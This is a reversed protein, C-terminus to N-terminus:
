YQIEATLIDGEMKVVKMLYYFDGNKVVYYSPVDIQREDIFKNEGVESYFDTLFYDSSYDSYKSEDIYAFKGKLTKMNKEENNDYVQGFIKSDATKGSADFVITQKNSLVRNANKYDARDKNDVLNFKYSTSGDNSVVKILYEGYVGVFSVAQTKAGTGNDKKSNYIVGKGDVVAIEKEYSNSVYLEVRKIESDSTIGLNITNSGKESLAVTGKELLVKGGNEIASGNITVSITPDNDDDDSGCSTFCPIITAAALLLSAFKFKKEM